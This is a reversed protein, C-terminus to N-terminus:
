TNIEPTVKYELNLLSELFEAIQTYTLKDLATCAGKVFKDLIKQDPRIELRTSFHLVDLM